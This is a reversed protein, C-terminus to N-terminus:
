FVKHSKKRVLFVIAEFKHLWEDGIHDLLVGGLAGVHILDDSTKSLDSLPETKPCKTGTQRAVNLDPRDCCPPGDGMPVTGYTIDESALRSNRLGLSQGVKIYIGTDGLERCVM